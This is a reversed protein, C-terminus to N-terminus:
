LINEYNLDSELPLKIHVTVGGGASSQFQLGYGSGFLLEIRKHVNRVGYGFSDRYVSISKNMECIAEKSM